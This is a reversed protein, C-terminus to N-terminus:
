NLKAWISCNITNKRQKKTEYLLQKNNLCKITELNIPLDMNYGKIFLTQKKFFDKTVLFYLWSPM